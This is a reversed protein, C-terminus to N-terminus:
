VTSAFYRPRPHSHHDLAISLGEIIAAHGINFRGPLLDSRVLTVFCIAISQFYILQDELLLKAILLRMVIFIQIFNEFFQSILSHALELIFNSVIEFLM